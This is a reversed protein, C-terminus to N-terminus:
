NKSGSGTKFSNINCSRQQELFGTSFSKEQGNTTWQEEDTNVFYTEQLFIIGPNSHKCNFPLQFSNIKKVRM